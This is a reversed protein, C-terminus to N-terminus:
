HGGTLEKLLFLILMCPLAVVIRKSFLIRHRNGVEDFLGPMFLSFPGLLGVWWDGRMHFIMKAFHFISLALFVFTVPFLVLMTIGTILQTDM